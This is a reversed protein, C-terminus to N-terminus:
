LADIGREGTRIRMAHVADFIVVKGDGIEGTHLAAVLVKLLRSVDKRRVMVELKLKPLFRIAATGSTKEQGGRQRGFGRVNFVTMGMMLHAKRLASTVDDLQEPRIVCAVVQLRYLSRARAYM